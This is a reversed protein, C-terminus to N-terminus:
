VALVVSGVVVLAVTLGVNCIMSRVTSQSAKRVSSLDRLGVLIELPDEYEVHKLM